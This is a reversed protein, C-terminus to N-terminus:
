WALTGSSLLAFERPEQWLDTTMRLILWEGENEVELIHIIKVEFREEMHMAITEQADFGKDDCWNEVLQKFLVNAYFIKSPSM